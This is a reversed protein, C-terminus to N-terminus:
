PVERWAGLADSGRRAMVSGQLWEAPLGESIDLETPEHPHIDPQEEELWQALEALGDKLPTRAATGFFCNMKGVDVTNEAEEKLKSQPTLDLKPVRGFARGVEQALSVM